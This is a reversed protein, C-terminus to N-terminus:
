AKALNMQLIRFTKLFLTCRPAEGEIIKWSCDGQVYCNCSCTCKHFLAKLPLPICGSIGCGHSRCGISETFHSLTLCTAARHHQLESRFLKNKSCPRSLKRNLCASKCRSDQLELFSLFLSRKWLLIGSM